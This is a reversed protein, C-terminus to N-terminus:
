HGGTQEYPQYGTVGHSMANYAFVFSPLYLSPKQEKVLTNLLNHHGCPNYPMTSSQKVGYSTYLHELIENEFLWGIDSHVHAPVGYVYFWKDVIIKAM